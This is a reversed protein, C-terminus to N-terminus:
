AELTEPTCDDRRVYDELTKALSAEADELTDVFYVLAWLDPTPYLVDASMETSGPDTHDTCFCQFEMLDVGFRVANDLGDMQVDIAHGDESYAVPFAYTDVVLYPAEDSPGLAPAEYVARISMSKGAQADGGVDGDDEPVLSSLERNLTYTTM